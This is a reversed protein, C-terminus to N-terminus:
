KREFTELTKMILEDAEQLVEEDIINENTEIIQLYEKVRTSIEYEKSATDKYSELVENNIKKSEYDMIPTNPLGKLYAEIKYKYDELIDDRRQGEWPAKLYDEAQFLREALEDFSITLGADAMSKDNSELAKIDIYTKLEESIFPDYDKLDNYDIIPYFAGELNILKYINSYLYDVEIRLKENEIEDINREKFEEELGGVAMLENNKDLEFIRDEYTKKNAELSSLLADIIKDANETSVKDIYEDIFKILIDPTPSNKEILKLEEMIEEDKARDESDETEVPDEVPVKGPDDEKLSSSCGSFGLIFIIILLLLIYPSFIRNKMTMRRILEM